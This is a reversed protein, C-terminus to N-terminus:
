INGSGRKGKNSVTQRNETPYGNKVWKQIGGELRIVNKYGKAKLYRGAVLSCRERECIIVVKKAAPIEKYREPMMDLPIYLCKESGICCREASDENRIDLLVFNENKDLMKKLEVATVEPIEAEPLKEISETPYDKMVWFSLGDRFCYVNKYGLKVAMSAATPSYM